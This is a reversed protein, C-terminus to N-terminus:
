GTLLENLYRDLDTRASETMEFAYHGWPSDIVRLEAGPILRREAECDEVPFLMDHSFPIM